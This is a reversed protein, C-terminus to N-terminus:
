ASAPFCLTISVGKNMSSKITIKGHIDNAREKIDTLGIGYTINEFGIGDDSIALQFKDKGIPKFLISVKNAHSHKIINLLAESVIYYINTSVKSTLSKLNVPQFDFDIDRGLRRYTEILEDIADVLGLSELTEIRVANIINRCEAYIENNVKLLKKITESDYTDKLNDLLLRSIVVKQNVSDHLVRSILKREQDIKDRYKSLVLKTQKERQYVGNYGCQVDIMVYLTFLGIFCLSIVLLILLL